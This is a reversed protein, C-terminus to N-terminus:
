HMEFNRCNRVEVHATPARANNLTVKSLYPFEGGIGVWFETYSKRSFECTEIYSEEEKYEELSFDYNQPSDGHFPDTIRKYKDRVAEPFYKSFRSQLNVFHDKSCQYIGIDSNGCRKGGCFREFSLAHGFKERGTKQSV